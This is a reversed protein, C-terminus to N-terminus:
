IVAVHRADAGRVAAIPIAREFTALRGDNKVALALLYLDILQSPGMIRGHDFVDTAMISIDDPWFEHEPRAIQARLAAFAESMIVPRAYRPTAIIRLFGNQTLPCSAWGPARNAGWWAHARAHHVHAPDFLALLMNVDFLARITM